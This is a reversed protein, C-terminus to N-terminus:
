KKDRELDYFRSTKLDIGLRVRGENSFNRKPYSIEMINDEAQVGLRKLVRGPRFMFGVDKCHKGADRCWSLDAYDYGKFGDIFPPAKPDRRKHLEYQQLGRETVKDSLQAFAVGAVNHQQCHRTWKWLTDSIERERGHESHPLASIYDLMELDAPHEEFIDLCERGSRVGDFFEINEAWDSMEANAAAIRGVEEDSLEGSMMKASNILTERAFLRDASRDAPDELDIITVSYGLSAAAWAFHWKLLSKGGGTDAAFLSLM